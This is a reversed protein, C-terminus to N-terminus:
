RNSKITRNRRETGRQRGIEGKKGQENGKEKGNTGRGRGKGQRKGKVETELRKWLGRGDRIRETGKAECEMQRGEEKESSKGKRGREKGDGKGQGVGEGIIRKGNTGEGNGAWVYGVNGTRPGYGTGMKRKVKGGWGKKNMTGEMETDKGKM